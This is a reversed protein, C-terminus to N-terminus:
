VKAWAWPKPWWRGDRGEALISAGALRHDILSAGILRRDFGVRWNAEVQGWGLQVMSYRHTYSIYLLRRHITRKLRKFDWYKCYLCAPLLIPVYQCQLICEYYNAFSLAGLYVSLCYLHAYLLVTRYCSTHSFFKNTRASLSLIFRIFGTLININTSVRWYQVTVPAVFAILAIFLMHLRAHVCHLTLYPATCILVSCYQATHIYVWTSEAISETSTRFSSLVRDSVLSYPHICSSLQRYVWTPTNCTISSPSNRSIFM